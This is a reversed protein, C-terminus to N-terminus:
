KNAFSLVKSLWAAVFRGGEPGYSPRLIRPTGNTIHHSYDAGGPQSLTVSKGIDHPPPRPPCGRIWCAQGQFHCVQCVQQRCAISVLSCQHVQIHVKIKRFHFINKTVKMNKPMKRLISNQGISFKQRAFIQNFM